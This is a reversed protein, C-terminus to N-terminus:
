RHDGRDADVRELLGASRLEAFVAPLIPELGDALGIQSLADPSIEDVYIERELGVGLLNGLGCAVHVMATLKHQDSAGEPHPNFDTAAEIIRDPIGWKTLIIRGIANADRASVDSGDKSSADQGGKSLMLAAGFVGVSHLLGASYADERLDPSVRSAICRAILAIARSHRNFNGEPSRYDASPNELHRMTGAVVCVLGFRRKGLLRVADPISSIRNPLGYYTTNCMRFIHYALVLDESIIGQIEQTSPAKSHVAKLLKGAVGEDPKLGEIQRILHDAEKDTLIRDQRVVPVVTQHLSKKVQIKGTAVDLLIKRGSIGGVDEKQIHIGEKKLVSVAVDANRRGISNQECFELQSSGGIVNAVLNERQAGKALMKETLLRVGTDAYYANRDDLPRSKRKGPLVIHVMGGVQNERDYLTVAVCSGVVTILAEEPDASVCYDGVPIIVQRKPVVLVQIDMEKAKNM